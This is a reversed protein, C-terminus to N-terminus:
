KSLIWKVDNTLLNPDSSNTDNFRDGEEYRYEHRTYFKNWGAGGSVNWTQVYSYGSGCRNEFKGINTFAKTSYTYWFFQSESVGSETEGSYWAALDYSDGNTASLYFSSESVKTDRPSVQMTNQTIQCGDRPSEYTDGLNFLYKEPVSDHLQLSIIGNTISGIDMYEEEQEGMALLRLRITGSINAPEYSCPNSECTRFYAQASETLTGIGGSSSSSPQGSPGDCCDDGDSSCAAFFAAVSLFLLIKFQKVATKEQSFTKLSSLFITIVQGQFFHSSLGGISYPKL